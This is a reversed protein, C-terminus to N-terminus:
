KKETKIPYWGIPEREFLNWYDAFKKYDGRVLWHRENNFITQNGIVSAVNEDDLQYMLIVNDQTTLTRIRNM